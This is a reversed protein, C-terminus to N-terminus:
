RAVQSSGLGDPEPQPPPGILGRVCLPLLGLVLFSASVALPGWTGLDLLKRAFSLSVFIPFLIGTWAYCNLVFSITRM